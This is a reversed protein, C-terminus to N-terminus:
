ARSIPALIALIMKEVSVFADDVHKTNASVLQRIKFDLQPVKVNAPFTFGCCKQLLEQYNKVSNEQLAQNM